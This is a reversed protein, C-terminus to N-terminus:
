FAASQLRSFSRFWQKLEGRNRRNRTVCWKPKTGWSERQIKRGIVAVLSGIQRQDATLPNLTKPTRDPAMVVHPLDGSGGNSEARSSTDLELKGDSDTSLQDGNTPMPM